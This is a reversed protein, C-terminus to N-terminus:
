QIEITYYNDRDHIIFYVIRVNFIASYNARKRFQMLMGHSVNHRFVAFHWKIERSDSVHIWAHIYTNEARDKEEDEKRRKREEGQKYHGLVYYPPCFALSRYAIHLATLLPACRLVLRHTQSPKSATSPVAHHVPIFNSPSLSPSSLSRPFFVLFGQVSFPVLFVYCHKWGKQQAEEEQKERGEGKWCRSISSVRQGRRKERTSSNPHWHSARRNTRLVGFVPPWRTHTANNLVRTRSKDWERKETREYPTPMPCFIANEQKHCFLLIRQYLSM